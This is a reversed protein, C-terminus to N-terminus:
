ASEKLPFLRDRADLLLGLIAMPGLDRDEAETIIWDLTMWTDCPWCVEMAKRRDPSKFDGCRPCYDLTNKAGTCFGGCPCDEPM